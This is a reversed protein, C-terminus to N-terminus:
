KLQDRQRAATRRNLGLPVGEESQFRQVSAQIELMLGITVLPLVPEQLSVWTILWDGAHLDPM